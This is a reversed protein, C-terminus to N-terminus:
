RLYDVLSPMLAKAAAGLAAEYTTRASNLRVIADTLDVDELRSQLGKLNTADSELRSGTEELMNMRAGITGRTLLVQDLAADLAPLGVEAATKGDGSTIANRIQILADLTPRFTEDGPIDVRLEIAGDLEYSVPATNGNYTVAAPVAGAAEFPPTTTKSGGFIYQGTFRTNGTQVAHKLLENIETSIAQLHSTGMADSGAQVTLERARHLVETITALAGDAAFLRSTASSVTRQDQANAAVDARHRIISAVASPDDSPRRVKKGSTIEDQVAMMRRQNAGLNARVTNTLMRDTIRM